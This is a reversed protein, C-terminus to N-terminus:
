NLLMYQNTLETPKLPTNKNVEMEGIKLNQQDIDILNPLVIDGSNRQKTKYKLPPVRATGYASYVEDLNHEYKAKQFELM